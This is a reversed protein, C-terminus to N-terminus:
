LAGDGRERHVFDDVSGLFRGAGRFRYSWTEVNEQNGLSMM